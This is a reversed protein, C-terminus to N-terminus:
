TSRQAFEEFLRDFPEQSVVASQNGGRKKKKLILQDPRLL